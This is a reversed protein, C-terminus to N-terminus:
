INHDIQIQRSDLKQDKLFIPSQFTNLSHNTSDQDISKKRQPKASKEQYNDKNVSDILKSCEEKDKKYAILSLNCDKIQYFFSAKKSLKTKFFFLQQNM